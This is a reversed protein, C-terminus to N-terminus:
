LMQKEVASLKGAYKLLMLMGAGTKSGMDDLGWL